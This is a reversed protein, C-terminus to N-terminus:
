TVIESAQAESTKLLRQQHATQKSILSASGQQSITVAM